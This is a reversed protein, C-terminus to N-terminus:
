AIMVLLNEAEDSRERLSHRVLIQFSTAGVRNEFSAPVNCPWNRLRLCWVAEWTVTGTILELFHAVLIACALEDLGGM